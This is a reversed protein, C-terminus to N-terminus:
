QDLMKEASRWIQEAVEEINKSADIEVINEDERWYNFAQKFASRVETLKELTEFLETQDRNREIREISIEPPLDLFFTLDAPRLRKAQSNLAAVWDIGAYAAQYALSSFYYRSSIVTQGAALRDLVGTEPHLLHEIRDAAFLAAVTKPDAKIRHQLIDRILQGSPLFDTPEASLNVEHGLKRLRNALLEIQTTKGSGDLGEFVVFLSKCLSAM